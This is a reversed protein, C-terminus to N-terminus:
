CEPPFIWFDTTHPEDPNNTTRPVFKVCKNKIFKSFIVSMELFTRQSFESTPFDKHLKIIIPQFKKSKRNADDFTKCSICINGSDLLNVDASELISGQLENKLNPFLKSLLNQEMKNEGLSDTSYSHWVIKTSNEPTKKGEKDCSRQKHPM